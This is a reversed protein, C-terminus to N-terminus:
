LEMLKQKIEEFNKLDEKRYSVDWGPTNFNIQIKDDIIYVSDSYKLNYMEITGELFKFTIWM